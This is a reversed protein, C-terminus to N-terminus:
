ENFVYKIICCLLEFLHQIFTYYFINVNLLRRCELFQTLVYCMIRM